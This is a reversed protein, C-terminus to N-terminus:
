MKLKSGFHYKLLDTILETQDYESPDDGDEVALDYEEWFSNWFDAHANHPFESIGEMGNLFMRAIDKTDYSDMLMRANVMAIFWDAQEEVSTTSSLDVNENLWEIFQDRTRIEKIEM